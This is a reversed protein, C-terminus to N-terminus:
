RLPRARRIAAAMGVAAAAKAADMVVFPAVGTALVAGADMGTVAALQAAGALYTVVVVAAAGAADAPLGPWGSREVADRLASGAAAGVLFGLLYGGTPGALVGLGGTLGSFVPLGAAGLALYAGVSLAAPVPELVLAILVVVFVQLTFPVTGIRVTLLVSASLLAALLGATTIDRPEIRVRRATRATAEGSGTM